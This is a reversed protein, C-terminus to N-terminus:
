PAVTGAPVCGDYRNPWINVKLLDRQVPRSTFYGYITLSKITWYAQEASRPARETALDLSGVRAMQLAPSLSLFDAAGHMSASADLEALGAAFDARRADDYWEAMLLDVFAPVGVDSAGPTDTRPLIIDGIATVTALQHADLRGRTAGARRHTDGALAMLREATLGSFVPIAAATGVLRLLDRRHM